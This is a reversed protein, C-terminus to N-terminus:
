GLETLIYCLLSESDHRESPLPVEKKIGNAKMFEGNEGLHGYRVMKDPEQVVVGTYRLIRLM